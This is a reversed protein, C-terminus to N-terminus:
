TKARRWCILIIPFGIALGAVFLVASVESTPPFLTMMSLPAIILVKIATVVVLRKKAEEQIIGLGFLAYHFLEAAVAVLLGALLWYIGGGRYASISLSLLGVALSILGVLARRM